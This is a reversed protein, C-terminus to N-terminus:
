AACLNWYAGDGDLPRGVSNVRVDFTDTDRTQTLCPSTETQGYVITVEKMHMEEVVRKMVDVPCPSGAMVGLRLSSFDRSKFTPDALM